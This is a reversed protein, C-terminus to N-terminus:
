LINLRGSELRRAHQEGRRAPHCTLPVVTASVTRTAAALATCYDDVPAIRIPPLQKGFQQATADVVVSNGQLVVAQHVFGILKDDPDLWGVVMARAALHGASRLSEVVKPTWVLCDGDIPHQPLNLDALLKILTAHEAGLNTMGACGQDDCRQGIRRVTSTM